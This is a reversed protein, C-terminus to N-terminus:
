EASLASSSSPSKKEEKCFTWDESHKALTNWLIMGYLSSVQNRTLSTNHTAIQELKDALIKKGFLRSNIIEERNLREEITTKILLHLPTDEYADFLNWHDRVGVAKQEKGDISYLSM